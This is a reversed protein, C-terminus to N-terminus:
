PMATCQAKTLPYSNEAQNNVTKQINRAENHELQIAHSFFTTM